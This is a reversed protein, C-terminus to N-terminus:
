DSYTTVESGLISMLKVHIATELRAARRVSATNGARLGRELHANARKELRDLRLVEVATHHDM